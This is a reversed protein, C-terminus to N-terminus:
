FFHKEVFALEFIVDNINEPIKLAGFLKFFNLPNLTPIISMIKKLKEVLTHWGIQKIFKYFFSPVGTSYSLKYYKNHLCQMKNTYPSSRVLHSKCM